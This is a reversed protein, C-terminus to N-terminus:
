NDVKQTKMAILSEQAAFGYGDYDVDSERYNINSSIESNFINHNTKLLYSRSGIGDKESNGDRKDAKSIGDSKYSNYSLFLSNFRENSYRLDTGIKETNFSGIETNLNINPISANEFTVINIVGGIADSGWLTSQSGKM